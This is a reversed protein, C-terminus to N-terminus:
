YFLLHLYTQKNRKAVLKKCQRYGKEIIWCSPLVRKSTSHTFTSQQISLHQQHHSSTFIFHRRIALQGKWPHRSLVIPPELNRSTLAQSILIPSNNSSQLWTLINHYCHSPPFITSSLFVLANDPLLEVNWSRSRLGLAWVTARDGDGNGLCENGWGAAVVSHCTHRWWLNNEM